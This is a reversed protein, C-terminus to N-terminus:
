KMLESKSNSLMKLLNTTILTAIFSYISKPLGSVFDLVGDNHYADSIYDDTYFLANLFFSIQFTCIFFSLKIVFLDLNNETCFTGLIIQTDVLFSWFIRLYVRKDKDIAEEYDMEQLEDDKQTIKSENINNEKDVATIMKNINKEGKGIKRKIKRKIKKKKIIKNSINENNNNNNNLFLGEIKRESSQQEKIGELILNNENINIIPNQINIIPSFNNVFNNKDKKYETDKMNLNIKSLLEFKSFSQINLLNRKNKENKQKLENQIINDLNNQGHEELNNNEININLKRESDDNKKLNNEKNENSNNNDNNTKLNRLIKKSKINIFEDIQEDKKENLNEGFNVKKPPFSNNNQNKQSKFMFMFYKIPKLKKILFICLFIIQLILLLLMCYFGINKSLIKTDFVLNYCFIVEINFDLLSSIFTKKLTKFNLTESQENKDNTEVIKGELFNSNCKCNATMLEYNMGIYSCGEQCFTANIYIDSRRDEIIIDKGYNNDYKHCLDNFFEDNVNFIDIGSDAFSKAKNIDLEECVDGLYKMIKIDEKCLSLNLKNGSLDYIEIQNKKGLDFFGDDSKEDTKKSEMNIIIFRDSINYYDKIIQTCNGLDIASVGKELQKKPDTDNSYIIVCIIDSNNILNCFNVYDTINDTIQSQFEETSISNDVSKMVCKNENIEYNIPCSELCTNNYYFKYTGSPCIKVCKNESTLFSDNEKCREICNGKDDLALYYEANGEILDNKCSLCNMNNSNGSGVCAKCKEYCNENRIVKVNSDDGGNNTKNNNSNNEEICNNDTTNTFSMQCISSYTEDISVSYSIDFPEKKGKTFVFSYEVTNEDVEIKEDKDTIPKGNLISTGLNPLNFFQIFYKTNTKKEFLTINKGILNNVECTINYCMPPYIYYQYLYNENGTENMYNLTVYYNNNEITLNYIRGPLSINFKNITEFKMNKRECSIKDQEGCCLLLESCFETLSCNDVKFNIKNKYDLINKIEIINNFYPSGNGNVYHINFYVIKCEVKSNEKNVACLIKYNTNNTDYLFINDYSSIGNM